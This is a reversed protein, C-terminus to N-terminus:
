RKQNENTSEMVSLFEAWLVRAYEEGFWEMSSKTHAIKNIFYAVCVLEFCLAVPSSIWQWCLVGGLLAGCLGCKAGAALNRAFGFRINYDLVHAGDKVMPRVVDTAESILKRALRMDAAEGEPNLTRLHLKFNLWRHIREKYECSFTDDSWLLMRTTPLDLGNKFYRLQLKRGGNRIGEGCCYVISLWSFGFSVLWKGMSELFSAINVTVFKDAIVSLMIAYPVAVILCPIWRAKFTYEDIKMMDEFISSCLFKGLPPCITLEYEYRNGFREIM